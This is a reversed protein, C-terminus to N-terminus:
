PKKSQSAIESCASGKFQSTNAVGIFKSYSANKDIREILRCLLVREAVSM